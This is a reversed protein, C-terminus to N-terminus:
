DLVNASRVVGSGYFLCMLLGLFLVPGVDPDEGVKCRELKSGHASASRYGTRLVVDQIGLHFANPFSAPDSEPFVGGCGVVKFSYSVVASGEMAPLAAISGM